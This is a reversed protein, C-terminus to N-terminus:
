VPVADERALRLFSRAGLDYDDAPVPRVSIWRECHALQLPQLAPIIRDIEGYPDVKGKLLVLLDIDSEDDYDGRAMSGYLVLGSFREGYLERLIRKAEELIPAIEAPIAGNEARVGAHRM